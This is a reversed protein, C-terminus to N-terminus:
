LFREYTARNGIRGPLHSSMQQSTWRPDDNGEILIPGEPTVAIDWGVYGIEPVVRSARNALELIDNWYPIRFGPINYGTSPHKDYVQGTDTQAPSVIEGSALDVRAVMDGLSTNAVERGNGITFTAYLINCKGNQLITIIRIPNVAKKYIKSISDHQAICDEIMGNDGYRARLYQYLMADDQFKNIDLKEVGSGHGSDVPKSVIYRKGAVFRRFTEFDLGELAVWDRSFFDEFKTAFLAKNRFYHRFQVNNYKARLKRTLRHTVYTSRQSRSLEFFRLILYDSINAGWRLRCRIIDSAVKWEPDGTEKAVSRSAHALDSGFREVRGLLKEVNGWVKMLSEGLTITVSYGPEHRGGMGPSVMWHNWGLEGM